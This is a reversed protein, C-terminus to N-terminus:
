KTSITANVALRVPKGHMPFGANKFGNTTAVVLTKGSKSPEPSQNVPLRIVMETNNNELTVRM